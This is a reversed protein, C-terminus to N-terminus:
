RNHLAFHQYDKLSNWQGGWGWGISTFAEVAPGGDYVMGPRVESRDLYSSALEPLVLERRIYPNHFPNLDLALGYAHQSFTSGGTVVRCVFSTTNNGDGTPELDLEYPEVIRMEEIPYRSDYLRGFVDVIDDAVDAHVIMEGLHPREDFGWFTMTLYRLEDAEVPCSPNWTSRALPEGQLPEITSEYGYTTPLALVDPTPLRRDILEPPTSVAAAFGTATTELTRSGLWDPATLSIGTIAPATPPTTTPIATTPITSASLTVSTQSAGTPEAQLDGAADNGVCAAGLLPAM